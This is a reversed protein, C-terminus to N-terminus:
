AERLELHTAGVRLRDGAHLVAAGGGALHQVSGGRAAALLCKVGNTSLLDRVVVAEGGQGDEAAVVRLEAHRESCYEDLPLRVDGEGMATRGVVAAGGRAPLAFRKGRHLLPGDVVVAVLGSEGGTRREHPPM